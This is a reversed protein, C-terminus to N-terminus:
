GRGVGSYQRNAQNIASVLAMGGGGRAWTAVSQSDLAQVTLSVNAGSGSSAPMRPQVASAYSVNGANIASLLPAHSRAAMPQVVFEDALMKAFGEGPGTGFDGFDDGVWGGTHYQAASMTVQSRGGIEQRQLNALVANIEPAINSSYYSRAGSGMSATSNQSSILLSNLEAALSGYGARGSEYDQMDKLLTPQVTNVDLSEAQGKGQDGFIGALLGGVAGAVAGIAGGVVTGLGPVISGLAAGAEMGGMAGGMAGATPNSNEYASYISTAGMLTGGAIGMAAAGYGSGSSALSSSVGSGAPGLSSADIVSNGAATTYSGGGSGLNLAPAIGAVGQSSADASGSDFGGTTLGATGGGFSGSGFGSTGGGFSGSGATSQLMTSANLLAQSGTLLTTSGQQFSIMAPNTMQSAAHNGLGLASKVDTLPNASTSMQPGMGFLYQLMGGTPGTSQFVSLMENAMMQFASDMARKEFFQEPHAFISQLGNALRDRTEEQSKQMQAAALNWAATVAVSGEQETMVQTKVDQQVKRVREEYQDEISAMTQQWEPLLLRATEQEDKTLEEMTRHHLQQRQRDADAEVAVAQQAYVGMAMGLDGYYETDAQALAALHRKTESEIRAYGQLEESDSSNMLSQIKEEYATQQEIGKQLSGQRASDRQSKFDASQASTEVGGIGVAKREAADIADLQTQLQASLLQMGKMGAQAAEDSLHKTQEDLQQQLKLAEAGFKQRAASTEALEARKSIEGEQFKRTIADIQEMEQAARLANGELGANRAENQMQIIQDTEQRQLEIEDAHAKSRAAADATEREMQGTDSAGRNGRSSEEVQMYQQKEKDIDLQKKLEATIKAQGKLAADGAHEADIQAMMQQHFLANQATSIEQAQAASKASSEAAGHAQLIQNVGMGAVGTNGTLLGLITDSWGSTSMSEAASRMDIMSNRAHDIRETATEISHVNIFDKDAMELQTKHFADQAATISIYKEYANYISEGMHAFIDVAGVALLGSGMGGIVGSLLQSNAIAKEMARPIRVGIDDRLLRVNDLSTLAHAGVQDLGAGAKAGAAEGAPGIANLQAVVQQVAEPANGDTVNITIQVVQGAM